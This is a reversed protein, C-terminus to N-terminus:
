STMELVRCEDPFLEVVRQLSLPPRHLLLTRGQRRLAEATEVLAGVGATDLFGTESLDLRVRLVPSKVLTSLAATLVPRSDQDADGVLRLGSGDGLPHVALPPRTSPEHAATRGPHAALLLDAAGSPLDYLCLCRLPLRACLETDLRLEFELLREPTVQRSLCWGMDGVLRLGRRGHALADECATRLEDIAQGPDFPLLGLPSDEARQVTLLSGAEPLLAEAAPRVQPGALWRVQEGRAVGERVFATVAASGARDDGYGGCLHRGAAGRPQGQPAPAM